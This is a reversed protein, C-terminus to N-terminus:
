KKKNKRFFLTYILLIIILTIVMHINTFFPLREFRLGCPQCTASDPCQAEPGSLRTYNVWRGPVGNVSCGGNEEGCEPSYDIKYNCSHININNGPQEGSQPIYKKNLGCSNSNLDWSCHCNSVFYNEGNRSVITGCDETGRGGSGSQGVNCSYNDYTCSKENTYESCSEIQREEQIICAKCENPNTNIFCGRKTSSFCQPYRPNRSECTEPTTAEGCNGDDKCQKGIQACNDCIRCDELFGCKKGNEETCDEENCYYNLRGLCAGTFIKDNEKECYALFFSTDDITSGSEDSAELEVNILSGAYEEAPYYIFRSINTKEYEGTITKERNEIDFFWTLSFDREGQSGYKLSQSGDFFVFGPESKPWNEPIDQRNKYTYKSIVQEEEPESVIACPIGEECFYLTHIDFTTDTGNDIEIKIDYAGPETIYWYFNSEESTTNENENEHTNWFYNIQNSGVKKVSWNWFKIESRPFCNQKFEIEEPDGIDIIKRDEPSIINVNIDGAEPSIKIPIPFYPEGIKISVIDNRKWLFASKGYVTKGECKEPEILGDLTTEKECYIKGSQTYCDEQNLPGVNLTFECEEPYRIQEFFNMSIKTLETIDPCGEEEAIIKIGVSDHITCGSSSCDHYTEASIITCESDIVELPTSDSVINPWGNYHRGNLFPYKVNITTEGEELGNFIHKQNQNNAILPDNSEYETYRYLQNAPDSLKHKNNNEDWGWTEYEITKGKQVKGNVYDLIEIRTLEPPAPPIEEGFKFQSYVELSYNSAILTEMENEIGLYKVKVTKGQCTEWDLDEENVIWTTEITPNYEEFDGHINVICKHEDDWAKMLITGGYELLSPCQIGPISLTLIIEDSLKCEGNECNSDDLSTSSILCNDYRPLITFSASDLKQNSFEFPYFIEILNIGIKKAKAIVNNEDIEIEMLNEHSSVYKSHQNLTVDKLFTSGSKTYWALVQLPIELGINIKLQDPILDISNLQTPNESFQFTEGELEITNSNILLLGNENYVNIEELETIFKGTCEQTVEQIEFSGVFKNAPQSECVFNKSQYTCGNTGKLILDAHDVYRIFGNMNIEVDINNGIDCVNEECDNGIKVGTIEPPPVESFKIQRRETLFNTNEPDGILKGLTEKNSNAIEVASKNWPNSWEPIQNTLFRIDTQSLGSFDLQFDCILLSPHIYECEGSYKFDITKLNTKDNNITAVQTKIFNVEECANNRGISLEARFEAEDLDCYYINDVLECNKPSIEASNIECVKKCENGDCIKGQELCNNGCAGCHENNNILYTECGNDWENDCDGYGSLCKCRAYTEEKCYANPRNCDKILSQSPPVRCRINRLPPRYCDSVLKYAKNDICTYTTGSCGTFQHMACRQEGDRWRCVCRCTDSLICTHHDWGGYHMWWCTSGGNLGDCYNECARECASDASANKTIIISFFIILCIIFITWILRVKKEEKIM